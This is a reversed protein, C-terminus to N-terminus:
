LLEEKKVISQFDPPLPATVSISKKKEPSVFSLHEAHLCLFNIGNKKAYSQSTASGYKTDGLVPHGISQLHVRIQHTRGTHLTCELLSMSHNSSMVKYSTQAERSKRTQLSSMKTRETLHRGIPADIMAKNEKPAGFVLTMYKKIVSRTEFQKQLFAHAEPNKAILLCGTTEKDLRHVLIAEPKFPIKKDSFLKKLGHLVTPEKTSAAPHVTLNRPKNIVLCSDDEYLIPLSMETSDINSSPSPLLESEIFVTDGETLAYGTKSKTKGNVLVRGERIYKEALSRSRLDAKRQLFGDLREPDGSSFTYTQQVAM